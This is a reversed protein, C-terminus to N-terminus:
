RKQLLIGGAWLARWVTLKEPLLPTEVYVQPNAESWIRCNQKNVYGKLWFHAKDSFLIRKHFEPVVAIENQAWEVFRRRAQHDNQHIALGFQSYIVQCSNFRDGDKWMIGFNQLCTDYRPVLKEIGEEYFTAAKTKLWNSVNEKLEKDNNFHKGALFSKLHLFLHFDSPALDPSYPPHDFVDWDFGRLLTKTVNTDHLFVVGKSLFGRRKNQIACRLKMIKRPTLNHKPKVRTPSSTHRYEMSQQKSEPTDYSVWTEDGTVIQSLFDLGGEHYRTLGKLACGIRKTKHSETLIKPVWRACLIHFKLKDTVIEHMLSRSVQPFEM